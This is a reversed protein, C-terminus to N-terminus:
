KQAKIVLYHIKISGNNYTKIVNEISINRFKMKELIQEIAKATPFCTIGNNALPAKSNSVNDITFKDILRGGGHKYSFSKNGLHYSFFFGGPKLVRRVESYVKLHESFTIHQMSVIDVVADFYNDKYPLNLMNGVKIDAKVKWKDLMKKCLNIGKKSIDFGYTDFEEKAIMWLNAGSGCGIELIKIKRRQSKNIHFFNVGLFRLLEENPYLRQANFGLKKYQEDWINIKKM